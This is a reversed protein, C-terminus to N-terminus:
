HSCDPAVCVCFVSATRVHQLHCSSCSFPALLDRRAFVMRGGAGPMVGGTPRGALFEHRALHVGLRWRSERPTPGWALKPTQVRPVTGQCGPALSSWLGVDTQPIRRDTWISPQLFLLCHLSPPSGSPPLPKSAWSLTRQTLHVHILFLLVPLCM